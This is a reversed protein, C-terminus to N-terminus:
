LPCFSKWAFGVMKVASRAFLDFNVYVRVMRREGEYIRSRLGLPFQYLYEQYDALCREVVRGQLVGVPPERVGYDFGM